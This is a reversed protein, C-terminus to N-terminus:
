FTEDESSADKHTRVGALFFFFYAGDNLLKLDFFRGM